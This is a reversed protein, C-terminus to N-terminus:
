EVMNREMSGPQPKAKAKPTPSKKMKLNISSPDFNTKSVIPAKQSHKKQTKASFVKKAINMKTDMDKKLASARAKAALSKEKSESKSLKADPASDFKNVSLTSTQSGKLIEGANGATINSATLISFSLITSVLIRIM